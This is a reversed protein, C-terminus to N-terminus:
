KRDEGKKYYGINIRTLTRDIKYDKIENIKSIDLNYALMIQGLIILVDAVEEEIHEKSDQLLIAESLEYCEENLKKLQNKEGFHKFIKLLDEDM